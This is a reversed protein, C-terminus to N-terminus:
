LCTTLLDAKNSFIWPIGRNLERYLVAKSNVIGVGVIKNALRLQKVRKDTILLYHGLVGGYNKELALKCFQGVNNLTPVLLMEEPSFLSLSAFLPEELSLLHYDKGAVLTSLTEKLATEAQFPAKLEVFLHMRKGYKAVVEALSPIQPALQRLTKFDLERISQEKGWLRRLNPDHNVVLVGDATEHIDFEIGWCGLALARAFASDTNEILGSKNDHAGRHAILCANSRSTKDSQRRPLSAFFSDVIKELIKLSM